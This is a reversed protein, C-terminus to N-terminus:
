KRWRKAYLLAQTQVSLKHPKTAAMKQVDTKCIPCKRRGMLLAQECARCRKSDARM